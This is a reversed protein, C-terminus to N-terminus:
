YKKSINGASILHNILYSIFIGSIRIWGRGSTIRFEIISDIDLPIGHVALCICPSKKRGIEGQQEMYGHYYLSVQVLAIQKMQHQQM